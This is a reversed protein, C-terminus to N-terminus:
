RTSRRCSPKYGYFNCDSCRSLRPSLALRSRKQLHAKALHRDGRKLRKKSMLSSACNQRSPVTLLCFQRKHPGSFGWTMSSCSPCLWETLTHHPTQALPNDTGEEDFLLVAGCGECAAPVQGQKPVMHDGAYLTM